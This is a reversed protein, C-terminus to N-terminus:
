LLLLEFDLKPIPASHVNLRRLYLYFALFPGLDCWVFRLRAKAGGFPLYLFRNGDTQM